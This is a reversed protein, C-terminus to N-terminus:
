QATQALDWGGGWRSEVVRRPGPRARFGALRARVHNRLSLSQRTFLWHNEFVTFGYGQAAMFEFIASPRSGRHLDGWPAIELLVVPSCRKLLKEAGLLARLEGGEVDIKIFDVDVDAFHEDLTICPVTTKEWDEDTRGTNELPFFAGSSDHDKPIYFSTEGGEDSVAKNVVIYQNGQEKSWRETLSELYKAKGPDAELCYLTADKLARGAFYSYQGLSAGVDVFTRIGGLISPLRTIEVGEDMNEGFYRAEMKEYVKNLEIM